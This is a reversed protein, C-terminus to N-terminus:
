IPVDNLTSNTLAIIFIERSVVGALASWDSEPTKHGDKVWLDKQEITMRVDFELHISAKNCGVTIKSGDDLTDFYVMLNEMERNIAVMWLTNVNM